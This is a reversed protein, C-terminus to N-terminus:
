RRFQKRCRANRPPDDTEYWNRPSLRPIETCGNCRQSSPSSRNSTARRKSRAKPTRSVPARPSRSGTPNRCDDKVLTTVGLESSLKPADFLDTGGENLTVPEADPDVPLFAEYKWQSPIIGDLAAEFTEQIVTYDYQVELIGEVGDHEPCTYIVQEPDYEAGCLVCELTTVHEM